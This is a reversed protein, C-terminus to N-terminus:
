STQTLSRTRKWEENRMRKYYTAAKRSGITRLTDRTRESLSDYLEKSPTTGEMEKLYSVISRRVIESWKIEPYRKMSAYIEDPVSLTIHAM